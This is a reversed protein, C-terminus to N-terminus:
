IREISKEEIWGVNKNMLEVKLWEDIHDTIKVKVGDTLLEIEDSRNDPATYMMSENYVIGHDQQHLLKHSTNGASYSILLLILALIILAIIKIRPTRDSQNYFLFITYLLFIGLLGQVTIWMTPSLTKSMGKWLRVPLFDPIELIDSQVKDRAISLNKNVSNNNPSLLKAKEYYLISKGLHGLKYESNGLNYYLESSELGQNVLQQYIEAAKDYESQSYYKNAQEFLQESDVQALLLLPLFTILFTYLLKM